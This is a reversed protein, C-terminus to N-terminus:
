YIKKYSLAIAINMSENLNYQVGVNATYEFLYKNFQENNLYSSKIFYNMVLGLNVNPSIKKEKFFTYGVLIPVGVYYFDKKIILNNSSILPDQDITILSIEENYGKNSFIFGTTISLGFNLNYIYNLGFDYGIKFADVEEQSKYIANSIEDFKNQKISEMAYNTTHFVSLEHKKTQALLTSCLITVVILLIQKKM